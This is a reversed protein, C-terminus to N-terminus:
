GKVSGATVGEVLHKQCMFFVIFVPLSLLLAAAHTLPELTINPNEPLIYSVGFLALALPWRPQTLYMFPTMFDGWNLIFISFVSIAIVSKCMPAYIRFIISFYDCGDIIAAEEIESPINMMYQRYMFMIFPAGTISMVVFLWFTDKLGISSFLVYQPVQLAIAPIMMQALTVTFLLKNGRVNLRAFAYGYLFNVVVGVVLSIGVIVFSNKLYMWFPILTVALRYNSWQWTKPFIVISGYLSRVSNILAFYLPIAFVISLLILVAHIIIQTYNIKRKM